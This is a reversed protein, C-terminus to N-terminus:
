DDAWPPPPMSRHAKALADSWQAGLERFYPDDAEIRRQTGAFRDPRITVMDFPLGVGLNSRLTSDFSILGLKIAEVLPTDTRLARDLIPKGYKFEGIQLYPTDSGCAIANGQPYILYLGLPGGRIQGGLLVTAGMDVAEAELGAEFDNRVTKLAYGVLEVARELTPVNLLTEPQDSGPLKIGSKLRSLATQTVSLNGATAIAIVREGTQETVFLKKYTSVNDVGANTRTDAIMALGEKLLMGVCYTM